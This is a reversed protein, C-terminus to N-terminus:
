FWVTVFRFIFSACSGLLLLDAVPLEEYVMIIKSPPFDCGYYVFTELIEYVSHLDGLMSFAHQIDKHFRRPISQMCSKPTLVLCLTQLSPHLNKVGKELQIVNKWM